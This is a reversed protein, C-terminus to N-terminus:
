AQQTTDLARHKGIIDQGVSAILRHNEMTEGISELSLENSQLIAPFPFRRALITAKVLGFRIADDSLRSEPAVVLDSNIQFPQAGGRNAPKTLVMGIRSNAVTPKFWTGDLTTSFM